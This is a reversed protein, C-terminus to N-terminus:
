IYSHDGKYSKRLRAVPAVGIFQPRRSHCPLQDPEQHHEGHYMIVRSAQYMGDM